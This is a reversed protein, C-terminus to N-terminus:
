GVPRTSFHNTLYDAIFLWESVFKPGFFSIFSEHENGLGLYVTLIINLVWKGRRERWPGEDWASFFPFLTV